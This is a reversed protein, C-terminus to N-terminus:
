EVSPAEFGALGFPPRPAAVLPSLEAPSFFFTGM